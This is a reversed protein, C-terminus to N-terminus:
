GVVEDAVVKIPQPEDGYTLEVVRQNFIPAMRSLPLARYPSDGRALCGLLPTVRLAYLPIRRLQATM